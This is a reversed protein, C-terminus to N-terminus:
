RHRAPWHGGLHRAVLVSADPKTPAGPRHAGAPLAPQHPAPCGAQLANRCGANPKPVSSTTLAVCRSQAHCAHARSGATSVLTPSRRQQCGPVEMHRNLIVLGASSSSLKSMQNRAKSSPWAYGLVLRHQTIQAPVLIRQSCCSVRSIDRASSPTGISSRLHM